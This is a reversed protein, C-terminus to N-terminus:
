VSSKEERRKKLISSGFSLLLASVVRNSQFESTPLYSYSRVGHHMGKYTDVVGPKGAGVLM